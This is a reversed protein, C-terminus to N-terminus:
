SGPTRCFLAGCSSNGPGAVGSIKCHGLVAEDPRLSVRIIKPAEYPKRKNKREQPEESMREGSKGRVRPAVRMVRLRRERM